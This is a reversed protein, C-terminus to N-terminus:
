VVPGDDKPPALFKDKFFVLIAAALAVGLNGFVELQESTWSVAMGLAALIGVWTTREALREFVYKIIAGM